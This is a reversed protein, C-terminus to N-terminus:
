RGFELLELMLQSRIPLEVLISAAVSPKIHGDRGAAAIARIAAAGGLHKLGYAAGKEVSGAPRRPSSRLLRRVCAQRPDQSTRRWRYSEALSGPASLLIERVVGYGDDHGSCGALAGGDLAPRDRRRFAEILAHTDSTSGPRAELDQAALKFYAHNALAKSVVNLARSTAMNQHQRWLKSTQGTM